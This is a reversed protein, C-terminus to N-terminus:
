RGKGDKWCYVVRSGSVRVGEELCVALVREPSEKGVPVLLGNTTVQLGPFMAQLRALGPLYPTATAVQLARWQIIAEAELAVPRNGERVVIRRCHTLLFGLDPSLLLSTTIDRAKYIRQGRTCGSVWAGLPERGRGHSLLGSLSLNSPLPRPPGLFM